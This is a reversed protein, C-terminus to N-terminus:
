WAPLCDKGFLQKARAVVAQSHMAKVFDLYKPNHAEQARAVILNAYPSHQSEIFLGSRSPSLGALQAYNTNIAALAVDSLARPIQAADLSVIQLQKPNGVIDRPTATFGSGAKLKILGAKQLLLLARAQNSPDNPIAVKAKVPLANLSKVSSSYLAMPYLFTRGLIVFHYERAKEQAVLFPKHQFVNMSISGDSLAMNPVNYDTFPIVQVSVGYREKAIQAALQVMQVEPGSIVGVKIVNSNDHCGALLVCIALVAAKIYRM